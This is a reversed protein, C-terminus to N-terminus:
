RSSSRGCTRVGPSGSAPRLASCSPRRAARRRRPSACCGGRTGPRRAARAGVAPLEVDGPPHDAAELLQPEDPVDLERVCRLPLAPANLRRRFAGCSTRSSSAAVDGARPLPLAGAGTRASRSATSRAPSSRTRARPESRSRGSSAAGRARRRSAPFAPSRGTSRATCCPSGGATCPTSHSGTPSGRRSGSSPRSPRSTRSRTGRRRRGDLLRAAANAERAVARDRGTCGRRVLRAPEM